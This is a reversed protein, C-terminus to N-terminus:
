LDMMADDEENGVYTAHTLLLSPVQLMFNIPIQIEGETFLNLWGFSGIRM